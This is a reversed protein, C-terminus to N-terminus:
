SHSNEAFFTAFPLQKQRWLVVCLPLLVLAILQSTSLPGIAGRSDARYFEIGFRGASYLLLYLLGVKGPNHERRAYLILLAAIAFNGLSSFLQTPVLAIDNPAHLSNHFVIGWPSSTPVGFCCGALLCGLRGFGQAVAIGPVAMDFYRYFDLKQKACYWTAVVFAVIIGGYVVFGSGSLIQQPNRIFYQMNVLVYLVKAGLFGSALVMMALTIVREADLGLKRARYESVSIAALFGICIMFGYSYITLPGLHLLEPYM